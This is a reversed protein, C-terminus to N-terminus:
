MASGTFSCSSSDGSDDAITATLAGTTFEDAFTGTVTWMFGQNDQSEPCTFDWGSETCTADFQYETGDVNIAFNMDFDPGSDTAQFETLTSEIGSRKFDCHKSTDSDWTWYSASPFIYLMDPTGDTWCAELTPDSVAETELAAECAQNCALADADSDWCSGQEGYVNEYLSDNGPDTAEACALYSVCDTTPAIAGSSSGTDDAGGPYYNKGSAAICSCAGCILLHRSPMLVSSVVRRAM